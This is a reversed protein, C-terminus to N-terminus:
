EHNEGKLISLIEKFEDIFRKIVTGDSYNDNSTAILEDYEEFYRIKKELKEILKQKNSELQKNKYREKLYKKSLRRNNSMKRSITKELQEIKDSYDFAIKGIDQYDDYIQEVSKQLEKNKKRMKYYRNKWKRRSQMLSQKGKSLEKIKNELQEIYKLANDITNIEKQWEKKDSTNALSCQMVKLNDARINWLGIKMSEIEEKSLM